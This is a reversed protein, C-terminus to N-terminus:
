AAPVEEARRRVAAMLQSGGGLVAVAVLVGAITAPHEAGDADVVLAIAITVGILVLLFGVVVVPVHRSVVGARVSLRQSRHRGSLVRHAVAAHAAGVVVTAVVAAVANGADSIVGLAVWAAALGWWYWWPMEVEAIVHRRRLEISSLAGSAEGESMDTV